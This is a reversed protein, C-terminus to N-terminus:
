EPKPPEVSKMTPASCERPPWDKMASGDHCLFALTEVMTGRMWSGTVLKSCLATAVSFPM